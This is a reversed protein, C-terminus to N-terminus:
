AATPAPPMGGGADGADPTPEVPGAGLNKDLGAKLGDLDASAYSTDDAPDHGFHKTTHSGDPHHDIETRKHKGGKKKKAPAKKESKKGSLVDAATVKAM